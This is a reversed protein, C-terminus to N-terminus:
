ILAVNGIKKVDSFKVFSIFSYREGSIVPKVEHYVDSKFIVGWGKNRNLTYEINNIWYKFDGGDYSESDSLQIVVSFFRTGNDDKHRWIFDDTQYRIVDYYFTDVNLEYDFTKIIQNLKQYIFTDPTASMEAQTSKRKKTNGRTDYEHGNYSIGLISEKFDKASELIQKCEQESFIVENHYIM